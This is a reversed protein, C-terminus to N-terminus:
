HRKKPASGTAASLGQQIAGPLKAATAALQAVSSFPSAPQYKSPDSPIPSGTPYASNVIETLVPETLDAIVNGFPVVARILNTLPLGNSTYTVYTTKGRLTVYPKHSGQRRDPDEPRDGGDEQDAAAAPAPHVEHEGAECPHRDISGDERESRPHEERRQEATPVLEARDTYRHRQERPTPHDSGSPNHRRTPATRHSRAAGDLVTM